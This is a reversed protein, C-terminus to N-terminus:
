FKVETEWKLRQQLSSIFQSSTFITIDVFIIVNYQHM